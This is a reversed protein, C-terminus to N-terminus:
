VLREPLRACSVDSRSKDGLELGEIGAPGRDPVGTALVEERQVGVGERPVISLRMPMAVGGNSRARREFDPIPRGTVSNVGSGCGSRVRVRSAADSRELAARM